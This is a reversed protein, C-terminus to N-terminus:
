ECKMCVDDKCVAGIDNAKNVFIVTMAKKLTYKKFPYNGNFFALRVSGSLGHSRYKTKARINRVKAYSKYM